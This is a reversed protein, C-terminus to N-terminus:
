KICLKMEIGSQHSQSYHGVIKVEPFREIEIGSQHSQSCHSTTNSQGIVFKLEVKTRNHAGEHEEDIEHESIEIGSQHSQSFPLKM